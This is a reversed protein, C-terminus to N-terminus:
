RQCGGNNRNGRFQGAKGASTPHGSDVMGFGSGDTNHKNRQVELLGIFVRVDGLTSDWVSNSDGILDVSVEISGSLTNNVTMTNSADSRQHSHSEGSAYTATVNWDYANRDPLVLRPENQNPLVSDPELDM